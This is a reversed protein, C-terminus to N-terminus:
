SAARECGYDAVVASLVAPDHPKRTTIRNRVYCDIAGRMCAADDPILTYARDLLASLHDPEDPAAIVTHVNYPEVQRHAATRRREGRGLRGRVARGYEHLVDKAVYDAYAHAWQEVMGRLLVAETM